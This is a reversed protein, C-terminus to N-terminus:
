DEESVRKMNSMRADFFACHACIPQLCNACYTHNCPLRTTWPQQCNVCYSRQPLDLPSNFGLTERLRQGSVARGCTPCVRDSIQADETLELFGRLCSASCVLKLGTACWLWRSTTLNQQLEGCLHCTLAEDGLHGRLMSFLVSRYFVTMHRENSTDGVQERLVQKLLELSSLTFDSHEDSVEVALSELPQVPRFCAESCYKQAETYDSSGVLQLRWTEQGVAFQHSCRICLQPAKSKIVLRRRPECFPCRSSATLGRSNSVQVLCFLTCALHRECVSMVGVACPLPILSGCGSCPFALDVQLPSNLLGPLISEAQAFAQTDLAAQFTHLPSAEWTEQVLSALATPDCLQKNLMPGLVAELNAPLERSNFDFRLMWLALLGLAEVSAKGLDERWEPLLFPLQLEASVGTAEHLDLLRFEEDAYMVNRPSLDSAYIGNTHAIALGASLDKLMRKVEECDWGRGAGGREMTEEELSKVPGDCQVLCPYLLGTEQGLVAQVSVLGRGNVEPRRLRAALFSDRTAASFCTLTLDQSNLRRSVFSM